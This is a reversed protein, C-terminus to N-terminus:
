QQGFCNVESDKCPESNRVRLPEPSVEGPFDERVVKDKRLQEM